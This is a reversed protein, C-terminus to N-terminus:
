PILPLNGTQNPIATANTLALVAKKPL